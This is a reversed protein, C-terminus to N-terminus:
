KINIPINMQFQTREKNKKVEHKIYWILTLKKGNGQCRTMKRKIFNGGEFLTKTTLQVDLCDPLGKTKPQASSIFSRFMGYHVQLQVHLIGLPHAVIM